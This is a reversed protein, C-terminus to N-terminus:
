WFRGADLAARARGGRSYLSRRILNRLQLAIRHGSRSISFGLAAQKGKLDSIISGTEAAM